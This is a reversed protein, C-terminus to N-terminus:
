DELRKRLAARVDRGRYFVGLVRVNRENDFVKFAITVSGRWSVTRLSVGDVNLRTGRHPITRFTQCHRVIRTVFDEAFAESRATSLYSQINALDTSASEDFIINYRAAM